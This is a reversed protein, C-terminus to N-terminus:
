ERQTRVRELAAEAERRTADDIKPHALCETLLAAARGSSGLRELAGAAGLLGDAARPDDPMHTVVRLFPWSARILEERTSAHSLLMEGKVLLFDPLAPEPCYRIAADLGALNAPSPDGALASRFAALVIEYVRATGISEDIALSAVRIAETTERKDRVRRLVDYRFVVLLTRTPGPPLRSIVGSLQEIARATKGDRRDPIRTPMIHVATAPGSFKGEATRIFFGAARDIQGARDTARLLRAALLDSWFSESTHVMRRYRSVAKAPKGGAVLREAQNFDAFTSGREVAILEVTDIRASRKEGAATRFVIYGNALGSIRVGVHNVGNAVLEDAVAGPGCWASIGLAMVIARAPRRRFM